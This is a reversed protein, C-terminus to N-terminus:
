RLIKIYKQEEEPNRARRPYFDNEEEKEIKMDSKGVSRKGRITTECIKEQRM